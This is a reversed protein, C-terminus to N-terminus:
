TFKETDKHKARAKKHHRHCLSLSRSEHIIGHTKSLRSETQSEEEAVGRSENERLHSVYFIFHTLFRWQLAM